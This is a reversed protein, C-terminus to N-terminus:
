IALHPLAASLRASAEADVEIGARDAQSLLLAVDHGAIRMQPAIAALPALVFAREAIRPHPIELDPEDITADAYTLIDIDLTRPGGREIRRRGMELEVSLCAALLAQASLTTEVEATMNLYPPQDLKGWPPTRYVPSIRLLTVGPAAALHQLAGIFAAAVDGINGGLGLFVKVADDNAV